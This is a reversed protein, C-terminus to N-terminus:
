NSPSIGEENVALNLAESYKKTYFAAYDRGLHGYSGDSNAEDDSNM